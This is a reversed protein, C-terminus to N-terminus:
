LKNCEEHRKNCGECEKNCPPKNIEAGIAYCGGSLLSVFYYYRVPATVMGYINYPLTGVYMCINYLM